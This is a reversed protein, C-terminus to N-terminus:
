RTLAHILHHFLPANFNDSAPSALLQAAPDASLPKGHKFQPDPTLAPGEGTLDLYFSAWFFRNPGSYVTGRPM